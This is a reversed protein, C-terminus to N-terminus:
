LNEPIAVVLLSQEFEIHLVPNEGHIVGVNRGNVYDVLRYSKAELGRFEVEGKFNPAFFAYYFRHGKRIVHSEPYDFAMDYLNLYEGEALRHEHYIQFWKRWVEEKESTLLWVERLRSLIEPREPWVFKTGPVGGAGIQSAFDEGGDTLEVHDAFVASQPGMLAKYFKIRQRVQYSSTPDAAVTQSVAPILDFTLPTGCPCIQIVAQQRLRRSETLIQRYLSGFGQISEEPEQHGHAPNYCQAMTYINDLKFGDFGWEGIFREVLKLTYNQVESLAPCLMALHRNNRAISGDSNLVVWDPHELLVRSYGYTLTDWQGHGDEACLPYWWLQAKLGAQHIREVLNKMEEDGSPFTDQRPNWDGYHDFWRDDLTVWRIGLRTLMPLVGEIEEPRVDFEYGWSCWAPEYDETSPQAPAVGRLKMMERYRALPEFFDGHHIMLVTYLGDLSNGPELRTNGRWQLSAIIQDASAEVPMYWPQSATELHGLAIGLDPTWFDVLPIGGGEGDQLHGLFNDRYFTSPLEFAFDQGWQVAAGQFTWVSQSSPRPISMRPLSLRNIEIPLDGRNEFRWHLFVTDHWRPFYDINIICILDCKYTIEVSYRFGKGLSSSLDVPGQFATKVPSDLPIQNYLEVLPFLQSVLKDNHFLSIAAQEDFVLNLAGFKLVMGM